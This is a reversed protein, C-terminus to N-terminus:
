KLVDKASPNCYNREGLGLLIIESGDNGIKMRYIGNIAGKVEVALNKHSVRTVTFTRIGVELNKKITKYEKGVEFKEM